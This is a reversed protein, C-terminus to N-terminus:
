ISRVILETNFDIANFPVAIVPAVGNNAMNNGINSNNNQAMIFTNKYICLIDEIFVSALTGFYPKFLDIPERFKLNKIGLLAEAGDKAGAALYVYMKPCIAPVLLHGIRRATDYITLLGIGKISGIISRIFDYLEEFDRFSNFIKGNQIFPVRSLTDPIFYSDKLANVANDVAENPICYQHGHRNCVCKRLVEDIKSGPTQYLKRIQNMEEVMSCCGSHKLDTRHTTSVYDFLYEDILEFTTM